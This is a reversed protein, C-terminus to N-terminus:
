RAHKVTRTFMHGCGDKVCRITYVTSDPVQKAAASGAQQQTRYSVKRHRVETKNRCKPCPPTQDSPVAMSFRRAKGTGCEWELACELCIHRRNRWSQTSFMAASAM